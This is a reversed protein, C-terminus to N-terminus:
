IITFLETLIGVLFLENLSYPSNIWSPNLSTSSKILRLPLITKSFYISHNIISEDNVLMDM